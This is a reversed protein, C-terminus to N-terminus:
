QHAKRKKKQEESLKLYRMLYVVVASDNPVARYAGTELEKFLAYPIKEGDLKTTVESM